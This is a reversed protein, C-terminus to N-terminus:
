FLASLIAGLLVGAVLAAGLLVTLVGVVLKGPVLVQMLRRVAAAAGMGRLVAVGGAARGLWGGGWREVEARRVREEWAVVMARAERRAGRRHRPLGDLRARWYHLSEQADVPSPGRLAEHVDDDHAPASMAPMHRHYIDDAM